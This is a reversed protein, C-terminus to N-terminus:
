RCASFDGSFIYLLHVGSGFDDVTGDLVENLTEENGNRGDEHRTVAQRPILDEGETHDSRGDEGDQINDGGADTGSGALTCAETNSGVENPKRAGAQLYSTSIDHYHTYSL